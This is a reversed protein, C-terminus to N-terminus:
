DVFIMAKIRLVNRSFVRMAQVRSKRSTCIGVFGTRLTDRCVLRFDIIKVSLYLKFSHAVTVIQGRM